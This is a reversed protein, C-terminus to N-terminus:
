DTDHQKVSNVSWQQKPCEKRNKAGWEQHYLQVETTKNNLCFCISM